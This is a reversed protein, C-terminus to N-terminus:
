LPKWFITILVYLKAVTLLRAMVATVQFHPFLFKSNTVFSDLIHEECDLLLFAFVM